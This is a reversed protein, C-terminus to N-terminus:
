VETLPVVLSGKELRSTGRELVVKWGKRILVNASLLNVRADRVHHVDELVIAKGDESVMAVAGVTSSSMSGTRTALGFRLPEELEKKNQLLAESGVIHHTAGSDIIWVVTHQGVSVLHSAPEITPDVAFQPLEVIGIFPGPASSLNAQGNEHGSGEDGKKDKKPCDRKM